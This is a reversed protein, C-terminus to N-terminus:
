PSWEKDDHDGFRSIENHRDRQRSLLFLNTKTQNSTWFFWGKPCTKCLKLNLDKV